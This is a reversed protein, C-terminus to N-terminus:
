VLANISFNIYKWKRGSWKGIVVNKLCNDTERVTFNSAKVDSLIRFEESIWLYQFCWLIVIFTGDLFIISEPEERYLDRPQEM